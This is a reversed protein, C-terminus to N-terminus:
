RWARPGPLIERPHLSDLRHAGYADVVVRDLTAITKIALRGGELTGELLWVNAEPRTREPEPAARAALMRNEALAVMALMQYFTPVSMRAEVASCNGLDDLLLGPIVIEDPEGLLGKLCWAQSPELAVDYRDIASASLEPGADSASSTGHQVQM